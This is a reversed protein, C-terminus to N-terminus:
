EHKPGVKAEEVWVLVLDVVLSFLMMVVALSVIM